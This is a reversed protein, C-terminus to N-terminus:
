PTRGESAIAYAFKRVINANAFTRLRRRLNAEDTFPTDFTVSLRRLQKATMACRDIATLLEIDRKGIQFDTKKKSM